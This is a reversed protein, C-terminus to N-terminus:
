ALPNPLAQEEMVEWFREVLERDAASGSIDLKRQEWYEFQPHEKMPEIIGTGRWFFVGMVELSPEDGYV